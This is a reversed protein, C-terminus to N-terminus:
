LRARLLEAPQEPDDGDTVMLLSIAGDPELTAHLGEAKFRGAFRRVFSVQGDRDLVGVASGRIEGDAYTDASAEAAALFVTRGDPLPSADTFSLRVGDLKGLEVPRLSVLAEAGILDGRLGRTVRELDLDVVANVGAPGNGRQLLRLRDGVVAAGEINLEPFDRELRLYLPALNITRAAGERPTGDAGLPVLVAVRRRERSGSGLALVAGHAGGAVAPPLHVLAEFDRKKKKRAGADKPLKGPLLRVLRGPGGGRAPFVGLHLMDDAAVLLHDGARVLGSAAALHPAQKADLELHRVRQVPLAPLERPGSTSIRKVTVM